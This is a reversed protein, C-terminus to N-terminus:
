KAENKIGRGGVLSRIWNSSDEEKRERFNDHFNQLLM